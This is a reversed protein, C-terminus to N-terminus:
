SYISSSKNISCELVPCVFVKFQAADDQVVTTCAFSHGLPVFSGGYNIKQTNSYNYKNRFHHKYKCINM